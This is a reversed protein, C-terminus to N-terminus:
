VNPDEELKAEIREILDKKRNESRIAKKRLEVVNCPITMERLKVLYIHNMEEETLNEGRKARDYADELQRLELDHSETVIEYPNSSSM